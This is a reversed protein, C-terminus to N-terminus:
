WGRGAAEGGDAAGVIVVPVLLVVPVGVLVPVVVLVLLVLLLGGGACRRLM